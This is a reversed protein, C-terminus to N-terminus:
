RRRRRPARVKGTSRDITRDALAKGMLVIGQAQLRAAKGAKVRPTASRASDKAAVVKGKPVRHAVLRGPTRNRNADLPGKAYNRATSKSTSTYIGSGFFGPVGIKYGGSKIARAADPSTGHYTRLFELRNPAKGAANVAAFRGKADRRYTRRAM